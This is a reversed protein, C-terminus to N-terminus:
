SDEVQLQFEEPLEQNDLWNGFEDLRTEADKSEQEENRVTYDTVGDWYSAEIVKGRFTHGNYGQIAEGAAAPQTFKVIVVGDKKNKYFITIKEVTGFEACKEFIEKEVGKLFLDEKAEGIGRLVLADFVSQLVIIRLGKLGGTIRGNEGADWGVAQLKALRAIKRKVSSVKRRGKFAEGHMEFKARQVSIREPNSIFKGSADVTRFHSDDLLQLCLDVSTKNAYCVSADGKLMGQTAVQGNSNDQPTSTSTSTSTPAPPAPTSTFIGQIQEGGRYRYLKVKPHQTEPDLDLVGVKKFYDAVERESTDSPLNTVYVWCKANRAKFKPKKNNNKNKDPAPKKKQEQTSKVQAQSQAQLKRKKSPAHNKADMWEGTGNDKVYTTGGDSEYEEEEEDLQENDNKDGPQATSTFFDDLLDNEHANAGAHQETNNASMGIKKNEEREKSEENQNDIGGMLIQIDICDQFAEMANMLDPLERMPKWGDSSAQASWVRSDNTINHEPKYYFAALERCSIPGMTASTSQNTSTTATTSHIAPDEYYWSACAEKLLPISQIPKWGNSDHTNTIADFVIVLTSQNLFSQNGNLAKSNQNSPCLIRCLQKASVANTSPQNTNPNQYYFLNSLALSM